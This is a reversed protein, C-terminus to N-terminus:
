NRDFLKYLKTNDDKIRIKILGDGILKNLAANVFIEEANQAPKPLFEDLTVWNSFAKVKRMNKIILERYDKM